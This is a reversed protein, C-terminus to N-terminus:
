PNAFTGMGLDYKQRPLSRFRTQGVRSSVVVKLFVGVGWIVGLFVFLLPSGHIDLIQTINFFGALICM